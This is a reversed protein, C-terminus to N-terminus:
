DQELIAMMKKIVIDIPNICDIGNERAILSIESCGAVFPMNQTINLLREKYSRPDIGKEVGTILSTIEQTNDVSLYRQGEGFLNNETAVPSCVVKNNEIHPKVVEVMNILPTPTMSQFDEFFIHATNCAIFGADCHINELLLRAKTSITLQMLNTHFHEVNVGVHVINPITRGKEIFMKILQKHAHLSAFHGMGGIILISKNTM